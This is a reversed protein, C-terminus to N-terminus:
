EFIQARLDRLKKITRGLAVDFAVDRKELLELGREVISFNTGSFWVGCDFGTPAYVTPHFLSDQESEAHAADDILGNM